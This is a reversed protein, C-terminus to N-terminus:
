FTGPMPSMGMRPWSKRELFLVWETTSKTTITRARTTSGLACSSSACGGTMGTGFISLFAKSLAKCRSRGFSTGGTCCGTGEGLWGHASGCQIFFLDYFSYESNTCRRIKDGIRHAHDFCHIARRKYTLKLLVDGPVPLGLERRHEFVRKDTHGQNVAIGIRVGCELRHRPQLL